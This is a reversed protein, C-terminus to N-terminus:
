PKDPILPINIRIGFPNGRVTDFEYSGNLSKVRTIINSLGLGSAPASKLRAWDIGIGDDNYVFELMDDSEGIRIGIRTASAHKLTNNILEFAIRYIATEIDRNPRIDLGTSTFGIRVTGLRNIKDIHVSLAELLGFDNLVNPVLNNAIEKTSRISEDLLENALRIYKEQEGRNETRSRILELHIKVTSLM